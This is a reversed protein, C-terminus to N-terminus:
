AVWSNSIGKRPARCADMATSSVMATPTIAECNWSMLAAEELSIELTATLSKKGANNITLTPLWNCESVTRVIDM